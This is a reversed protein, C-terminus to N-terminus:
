QTTLKGFIIGFILSFLSGLKLLGIYVFHAHVRGSIVDGTGLPM